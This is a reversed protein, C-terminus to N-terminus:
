HIRLKDLVHQIENESSITLKGDKRLIFNEAWNQLTALELDLRKASHSRQQYKYQRMMAKELDKM